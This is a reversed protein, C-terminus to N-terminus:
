ACTGPLRTGAIRISAEPMISRIAAMADACVASMGRIRLAPYSKSLLRRPLPRRAPRPKGSHARARPRRPEAHPQPRRRRQPFRDPLAGHVSGPEMGRPADRRLLTLPSAPHRGRPLRVRGPRHGTGGGCSRAAMTCGARRAPPCGRGPRGLRSWFRLFSSWQMTPSRAPFRRVYAADPTRTVSRRCSLTRASKMSVSRKSRRPPCRPAYIRYPDDPPFPWSPKAATATAGPGPRM